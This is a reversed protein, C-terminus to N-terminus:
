RPPDTQYIMFKQQDAVEALVKGGSIRHLCLRIVRSLHRVEDNYQCLDLGIVGRDREAVQYMGTIMEVFPSVSKASSGVAVFGCYWIHSLAFLEPWRNQFYAPSILPMSELVNTYTALGCLQGSGDFALWKQVRIDWCVEDFESRTMLHRQVTLTNLGEFAEEYLKWADDAEGGRLQEVIVIKM